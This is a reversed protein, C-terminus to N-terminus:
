RYGRSQRARRLMTPPPQALASWPNRQHRPDSIPLVQSNYGRGQPGDLVQSELVQSTLPRAMPAHSCGAVLRNSRGATVVRDVHIAKHAIMLL